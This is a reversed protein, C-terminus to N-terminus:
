QLSWSIFVFECLVVIVEELYRSYKIGAYVMVPKILQHKIGKYKVAVNIKKKINANPL